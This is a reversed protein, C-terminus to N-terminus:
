SDIRKWFLSGESSLGLARLHSALGSQDNYLRIQVRDCNLAGAQGEAADLLARVTRRSNILDVATFLQIALLLGVRLDRDLRYAFIGCISGAPDRVAHVGARGVMTRDNFFRVFSQWACLDAAPWTAQILPFAQSVEDDSLAAARFSVGMSLLHLSKSSGDNVLILPPPLAVAQPVM